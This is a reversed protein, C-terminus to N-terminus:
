LLEIEYRARWFDRQSTDRQRRFEAVQRIRDMRLLADNVPAGCTPSGLQSIDSAVGDFFDSVFQLLSGGSVPTGDTNHPTDIVLEFTVRGFPYGARAVTYSAVPILVLGRPRKYDNLVEDDPFRELIDIFNKAEIYDLAGTAAIFTPSNAIM